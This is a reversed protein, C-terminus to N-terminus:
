SLRRRIHIGALREEMLAQEYRSRVFVSRNGVFKSCALGLYPQCFGGSDDDDDDDDYVDDYTVVDNDYDYEAIDDYLVRLGDDSSSSSSSSLWVSLRVNVNCCFHRWM